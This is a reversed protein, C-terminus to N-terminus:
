DGGNRPLRRLIRDLKDQMDKVSRKIEAQTAKINGLENKIVARESDQAAKSKNGWACHEKFDQRIERLQEVNQAVGAKLYTFSIVISVAAVIITWMLTPNDNIFKRM